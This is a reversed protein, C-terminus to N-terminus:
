RDKWNRSRRGDTTPRDVEIRVVTTAEELSDVGCAVLTPTRGGLRAIADRHTAIEEAAKAGKMALLVGGNRTLPLCWGALRDLPAVARATVVDADGAATRVSKEEARGRLVTVDLGLQEVIETLWNTRRLMPEVLTLKLDPRAIALPIGPLGAGSGVDVVSASQPILQAIAASNLLHREWLRDVERPGILGRLVGQEALLDHFRVATSLYDGFVDAAGPPVPTRVEREIM